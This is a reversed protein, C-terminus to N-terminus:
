ALRDTNDAALMWKLECREDQQRVVQVGNPSQRCGVGIVRRTPFQDFRSEGASPQLGATRYLDRREAPLSFSLVANPLSSEEFVGATVFGVEFAADIVDVDIGELM